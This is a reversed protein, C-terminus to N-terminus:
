GDAGGCRCEVSILRALSVFRRFAGVECLRACQHSCGGHHREHLAAEARPVPRSPRSSTCRDPGGVGVLVSRCGGARPAARGMRRGSARSRGRVRLGEVPASSANSYRGPCNLHARGLPSLRAVDEDSVQIQQTRLRDM